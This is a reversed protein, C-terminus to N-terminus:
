NADSRLRQWEDGFAGVVARRVTETVFGYVVHATFTYAHKSLPFESAPKTLGLRPMAFEDGLAWVALGFPVGQAIATKESGACALGYLGGLAGGFVYHIVGGAAKEQDPTLDRNAIKKAAM